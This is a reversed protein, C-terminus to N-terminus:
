GSRDLTAARVLTAVADLLQARADPELVLGEDDIMAATIPVDACAAEVVSAGVYGLVRRLSEHALVAGRPSVNIWAVPKGNISRPRDDGVTWDLWNKFSGPLAGAYEPVSLLVADSEHLQARMAMVAPPLPPEDDDPNFHPLSGLGDYLVAEADRALAAVTRLAATTSSRARLSGSVLLLRPAHTVVAGL